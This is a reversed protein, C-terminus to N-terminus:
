ERAKPTNEVRLFLAQGRSMRGLELKGDAVVYEGGALLDVLTAGDAINALAMDLVADGTEGRTAAVIITEARSERAFAILEDRAHLLQFGGHKLADSDKRIDIIAQHFARMDGDWLAEDWPMCRRNDPDTGGDMGIEDGYYVCPVGPFGMLLAAGAKVLDRDGGAVRLPRTIDHSGIQNFQQLAIAYPISTLYAQWQLALSETPLPHPDGFAHGQPVGHDGKGLWRRVPTNFGQYNMSADLEDGQLHPSSDQFYEGMMFADPNEAKIAQRMELWIERDRQHHWFNGTMNAVDLRWGDISYPPRLWKRIPSAADRYMKDRLTQSEYNLKVLAPVGLWHEIEGTKPHRYFFEASECEPAAVADLYWPHCFGIHNPTIDLILRMDRETMAARLERLAADGGLCPAIHDFDRIIYFHNTEADFIPNLYIATVGLDCLYELKRTIGQLDGGFFDVNRSETFHRPLDGWERQLVPKGMWTEDGTQRDNSPDGNHFREPFIQYFVQERVWLPADYDGLVTFNFYDPCDVPSPGAANFFFSGTQTLIRFCYNNHHMSIPMQASWWDCRADSSDIAMPIRRWEGDPRSRLYVARVEKTKPLRIRVTIEDGIRPLTESLYVESSDHHICPAWAPLQSM